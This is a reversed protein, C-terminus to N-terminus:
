RGETVPTEFLQKRQEMLEEIRAVIAKLDTGDAEVSKELQELVGLFSLDHQYLLDLEEDRIKLQDFFGAYGYSAYRISDAHKQLKREFLGIDDLESLRGENTLTLKLDSLKKRANDIRTALYERLRKDTTRRNEKERYGSLGPIADAIKELFNKESQRM